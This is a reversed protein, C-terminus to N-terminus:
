CASDGASFGGYRVHKYTAATMQNIKVFQGVFHLFRSLGGPM